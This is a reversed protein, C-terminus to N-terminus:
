YFSFITPNFYAKILCIFPRVKVRKQSPAMTISRIIYYLRGTTKIVFYFIKVTKSSTFVFVFFIFFVCLPFSKSNLGKRLENKSHEFLTLPFNM